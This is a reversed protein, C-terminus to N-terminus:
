KEEKAKLYFSVFDKFDKAKKKEELDKCVKDIQKDTLQKGITDKKDLIDCIFNYNEM